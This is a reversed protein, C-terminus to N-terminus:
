PGVDVAGNLHFSTRSAGSGSVLIGGQPTVTRPHCRACDPFAIGAHRQDGPPVGHCTGCTAQSTGLTWVPTAGGHCYTASCSAGTWVPREGSAVALGSFVVTAPKPHDIHGPSDIEKPVVHCTGCAIPASLFTRGAVHAEHAGVGPASTSVNGSVDRPPAPSQASGHCSSCTPIGDDAVQLSHCAQCSVRAKGGALDAGHCSQCVSFNWNRERVLNAHFEPDRPDQIGIDHVHVGAQIPEGELPRAKSCSCVMLALALIEAVPRM